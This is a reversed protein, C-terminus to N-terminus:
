FNVTIKDSDLITDINLTNFVHFSLEMTQIQEINNQEMENKLFILSSFARKGPTISSSLVPNMMFGNVSVDRAQVTINQDSNNEIYLYVDAGWFSNKDDVKKIVIKIGNQDLMVSGSDDYTQVFNPDVNTTFNIPDSIFLSSFDSSNLIIFKLEIDKFVDIGSTKLESSTFILNENAKKGSSIDASFITNIMVNNVSVDRSQITIDNASNNEILFNLSPGLFNNVDMSKLTIKVNDRDLLVQENVTIKKPDIELTTEKISITNNPIVQNDQINNIPDAIQTDNIATNDSSCSAMIITLFALAIAMIWFSKRNKKKEKITYKDKM